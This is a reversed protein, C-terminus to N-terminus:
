RDLSGTSAVLISQGLKHKRIKPKPSTSNQLTAIRQIIVLVPRRTISVRTRVVHALMHCVLFSTFTCVGYTQISTNTYTYCRKGTCRACGYTVHM